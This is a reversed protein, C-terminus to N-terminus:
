IALKCSLELSSVVITDVKVWIYDTDSLNLIKFINQMSIRIDLSILEYKFPFLIHVFNETFCRRKRIGDIRFLTTMIRSFLRTFLQGINLFSMITLYLICMFKTLINKYESFFLRDSILIKIDLSNLIYIYLNRIFRSCSKWYLKLLIRIVLWILQYWVTNFYIKHFSFIM